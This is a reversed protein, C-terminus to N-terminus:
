LAKIIFFLFSLYYLFEIRRGNEALIQIIQAVRWWGHNTGEVEHM